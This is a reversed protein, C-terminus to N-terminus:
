AQNHFLNKVYILLYDSAVTEQTCLAFDKMLSTLQIYIMIYVYVHHM